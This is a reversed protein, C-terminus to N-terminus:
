WFFGRKVVSDVTPESSAPQLLGAADERVGEKGEPTKTEAETSGALAKRGTLYIM